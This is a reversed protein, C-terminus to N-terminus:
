KKVEVHRGLRYFFRFSMPWILGAVVVILFYRVMRAPYPDSFLAELPARLGEKVILVLVLGLAAKLIQAWWLARTTFNVYKKELHYVVAVGALSGVMTYANKLGSELNQADVDSPFPYLEVFLLLGIAMAIMGAVLAKMGKDSCVVKRLAVVLLVSTLAGVIVDKPTHVGIYMRSLGVLVALVTSLVAAWRRRATAAISGFTGFANTTHGSPFSYGTAAERAEELITFNNDLVWPRPIRFWLKMFQNAMTGIFGVTMILYGRQKDVCWFFILALVLFATEEGLRTILLMFENLVPTRIDELMYLFEMTDRGIIMTNGTYCLDPSIEVYFSPSGTKRCDRQM